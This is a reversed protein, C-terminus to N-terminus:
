SRWAPTGPHVRTGGPAAPPESPLTAGALWRYLAIFIFVAYPISGPGLMIGAALQQDGLASLGPHSSYAAYLPSPAFALVLALLWCVTAGGLVYAVRHAQGLRMRLPPSAVVQAWFLVALMLFSLHELDHVAQSRLTLGYLAPVHWACLDVNFLVFMPLPRAVFRAVARLPRWGPSRVYSAGLRRRTRLSLGKWLPTWPAALVLLPAAVMMLLVHQVMHVWFLRDAEDDVVSDLAVVLTVLAAWFALRRWRLPALRASSVVRAHRRRGLEYLVAAVLATLLPPSLLTPM